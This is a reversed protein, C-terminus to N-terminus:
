DAETYFCSHGNETGPNWWRHPLLCPVLNSQGWQAVYVITLLCGLSLYGLIWTFWEDLNSQFSSQPRPPSYFLHVPSIHNLSELCLIVQGM